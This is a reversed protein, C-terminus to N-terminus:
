FSIVISLNCHLPIPFHYRQFLSFMSNKSLWCKIIYMRTRREKQSHVFPVYESLQGSPTAIVQSPVKKWHKHISLFLKVNCWWWSALCFLIICLFGTKTIETVAFTGHSCYHSYVWPAFSSPSILACGSLLSKWLSQPTHPQSGVLASFSSPSWQSWKVPVGSHIWGRLIHM